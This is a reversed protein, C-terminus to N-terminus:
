PFNVLNLHGRGVYMDKNKRERSGKGKGLEIREM